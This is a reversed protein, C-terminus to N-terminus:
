SKDVCIMREIDEVPKTEDQWNLNYYKISYADLLLKIEDDKEISEKYSHIRDTNVYFRKNRTILYNFNTYKKDEAIVMQNFISADESKNYIINLLLPSDCVAIEIGSRDLRRLRHSQEAFLYLQDHINVLSQEYILEKAYEGVLEVRYGKKKLLTYSVASQYSKGVAPGGYYNLVIM